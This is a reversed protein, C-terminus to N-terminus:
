LTKTFSIRLTGGIFIKNHLKMLVRVATQQDLFEVFWMNRKKVSNERKLRVVVGMQSMPKIIDEESLTRDDRDHHFTVHLTRSIPNVKNPLGPGKSSFRKRPCFHTYQNTELYSQLFAKSIHTVTIIDGALDLGDLYSVAYDVGEKCFYCLFFGSGESCCIALDINGYNTFLNCLEKAGHSRWDTGEVSIVFEGRAYILDLPHCTAPSESQSHFPRYRSHTPSISSYPESLPRPAPRQVAERQEPSAPIFNFKLNTPSHNLLGLSFKSKWERRHMKKEVIHNHISSFSSALHPLQYNSKGPNFFNAQCVPEDALRNSSIIDHSNDGATLAQSNFTDKRSWNSLSIYLPGVWSGEEEVTFKFKISPTQTADDVLVDFNTRVAQLTSPLRYYFAELQKLSGQLYLHRNTEGFRTHSDNKLPPRLFIGLDRAQRSCKQVIWDEHCHEISSDLRIQISLECSEILRIRALSSMISALEPMKLDAQKNVQDQSM